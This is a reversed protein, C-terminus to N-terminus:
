NDTECNGIREPRMIGNMCEGGNFVHCTDASTGEVTCKRALPPCKHRKYGRLLRGSDSILEEPSPDVAIIGNNGLSPAATKYIIEKGCLSCKVM